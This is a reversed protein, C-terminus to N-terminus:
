LREVSSTAAVAVPASGAVRSHVVSKALPDLVRSLHNIADASAGISGLGERLGSGMTGEVLGVISSVTECIHDAHALMIVHETGLLSVWQERVWPDRGNNANTPLLFFVHYKEQAEKVLTATSVDAEAGDDFVNQAEKRTTVDYPGEDGIIFCNSSAYGWAVYNHTTTQMSVVEQPPLSEIKAVRDGTRSMTPPRGEEGHEYKAWKSSLILDLLQKRRTIPLALIKVYTQLGGLMFYSDTRYNFDFGLRTLTEEIRKCVEPNHDRDQSIGNVSGEGDYIGALWAADERLEPSLPEIPDIVHSLLAGKGYRNTVETFIDVDEENGKGHHGSLWQHDETCRLVRGSEMTVQVVNEAHRRQVAQVTTVVLSRRGNLREWGMVKDGPVVEGIPKFTQDAMWIPADPTNCYGKKQRKEFCDISTHRAAFYLALQYSERPPRQGGGGGEIFVRTLDDDMEVGSEFQGVQLAVRDSHYDGVAGFLIQPDAVVGKNLMGMLNPLQKQLDVPIGGMSGTVDFFFAIAVSNPHAASDRSERTVGKPSMKDHAKAAVKGTKVAHDYAFTPTHTAQKAAQRDKYFDDNWYSGGM